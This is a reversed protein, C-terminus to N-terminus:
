CCCREAAPQETKARPHRLVVGAAQVLLTLLHRKWLRNDELAYATITDQGGLHVLLLAAWLALLQRREGSPSSSIAMHGLAYIATTDALQYALWLLLKNLRALHRRKELLSHRRAIPIVFLLLQCVLSLLVMIQIGNKTWWEVVGGMISRVICLQWSM